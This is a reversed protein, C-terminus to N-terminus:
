KALIATLERLQTRARLLYFGQVALHNPVFASDLDGNIVFFHDLLAGKEMSQVTQQWANHLGRETIVGEYDRALAKLLLAYAYMRGKIDYFLKDADTDIFGGARREIHNDLSASSSGLDTSIRELTELLNDARREFVAENRSLRLNYRKLAEMAARYQTESAATPMLSTSFDFVWVTPSYKLLGTAKELDPDVQSSGRTRGIQDTMEMSFRALGAIIGKQFAPMRDLWAGPLFFPDNPTYQHRNVERDILAIATAVAASGGQVQNPGPTFNLDDDIRNVVLMGIPLYLLLFAAIVGGIAALLWKPLHKLREILSTPPQPQM